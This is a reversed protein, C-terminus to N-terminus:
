WALLTFLAHYFRSIKVVMVMVVMMMLLLMLFTVAWSSVYFFCHFFM